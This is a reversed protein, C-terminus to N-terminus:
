NVTFFNIPNLDKCSINLEIAIQQHSKTISFRIHIFVKNIKITRCPGLILM